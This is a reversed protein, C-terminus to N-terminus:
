LFLAEIINVLGFDRTHQSLKAGHTRAVGFHFHNIAQWGFQAYWGGGAWQFVQHQVNIVVIGHDNDVGAWAGCLQYLAGAPSM